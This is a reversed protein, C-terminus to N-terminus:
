GAHSSPTTPCSIMQRRFRPTVYPKSPYGKSPRAGLPQGSSWVASPVSATQARWTRAPLREVGGDVGDATRGNGRHQISKFRSFNDGASHLMCLKNTINIKGAKLPVPTRHLRGVVHIISTLDGFACIWGQGESESRQVFRTALQDEGAIPGDDFGIGKVRHKFGNPRVASDTPTM